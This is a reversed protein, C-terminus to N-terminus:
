RKFIEWQSIVEIHTNIEMGKRGELPRPDFLCQNTVRPPERSGDCLPNEGGCKFRVYFVQFRFYYMEDEKMPEKHVIHIVFCPVHYYIHNMVMLLTHDIFIYVYM